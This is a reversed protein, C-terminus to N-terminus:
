PTQFQGAGSGASGFSGVQLLFSLLTQFTTDAGNTTGAANTAVVRFHYLTLPTLGTVSASTTQPDFSSGLDFASCPVSTATNYGSATFSAADVYQFECTTAGGSPNVSANLTATADTVNTASQSVIIPPGPTQFTKDGGNVTGRSNSTVVLAFHYTTSETLGSIDASVNTPGAYPPGPVCPVSNGYSTDTGTEFHCETVDGADAPDVNGNLTASTGTV